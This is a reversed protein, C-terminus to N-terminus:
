GKSIVLDGVMLEGAKKLGEPVLISTDDSFCGKKVLM